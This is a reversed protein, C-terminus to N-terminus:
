MALVVHEPVVLKSDIRYRSVFKAKEDYDHYKLKLESLKDQDPTGIPSSGKYTAVARHPNVHATGSNFDAISNIIMDWEPVVKIPRSYISLNEMTYIGTLPDRECCNVQKNERLWRMYATAISKTVRIEVDNRTTLERDDEVAENVANIIDFGEQATLKQAAYSAGGNKSIAVRRDTGTTEADYQVFLGNHGTLATSTATTAAFYAKTWLSNKLRQGILNKLFDVYFTSEDFEDLLRVSNFYDLMVVPLDKSCFELTCAYPVPNWTAVSTSINVDCPLDDCQSTLGSADKMYEWDEGKNMFPIPDNAQVGTVIDHLASIESAQTLDRFILQSYAVLEADSLKSIANMFASVDPNFAM